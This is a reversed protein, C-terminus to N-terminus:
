LVKELATFSARNESHAVGLDDAHIILLKENKSYGLREQLTQQSIATINYLLLLPLLM